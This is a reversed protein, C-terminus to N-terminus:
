KKTNQCTKTTMFEQARQAIAKAHTYHTGHRADSLVLLESNPLQKHLLEGSKIPTYTDNKGWILLVKNTIKDLHQMSGTASVLSMSARMVPPTDAWVHARLIKGVIFKYLKQPLFKKIYRFLPAINIIIKRHLKMPLRVAPAGLIVLPAATGGREALHLITRAGYSHGFFLDPTIDTISLFAELFDTYEEWGWAKKPTDSEGFGPADVAIFRYGPLVKMLEPVVIHFSEAKGNWGHMMVCVKDGNGWTLMRVSLSMVEVFDTKPHTM